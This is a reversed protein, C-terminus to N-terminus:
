WFIRPSVCVFFSFFQSIGTAGALERGFGGNLDSYGSTSRGRTSVSPRWNTERFNKDSALDGFYKHALVCSFHSFDSLEEQAPENM